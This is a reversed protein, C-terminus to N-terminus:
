KIFYYRKVGKIFGVFKAIDYVFGVLFLGFFAELPFEKYHLINGSKFLPAFFARLLFYFSLSVFFLPLSTFAIFLLIILSSLYVLEVTIANLGVSYETYLIVKTFLKPFNPAFNFGKYKIIVDSNIRWKIGLDKLKLKWAVDYGARRNEVFLGTKNFVSLYALTSPVCPRYRKYGYTQSIICRDVWNAGICYVVGSVVDLNNKELYEKQSQLWNSNFNQGCDMFAILETTTKRIGINKSSAPNNSYEFINVYDSIASEKNDMIWKDIISSSNDTSSSNVFIVKAPQLSQEKLSALTELITESENYYPIVVTINSKHM